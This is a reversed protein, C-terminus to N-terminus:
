GAAGPPAAWAKPVRASGRVILRAPLITSRRQVEQQAIQEMLIDVAARVMGTASQAITTLSYGGWGAEPVDDYGM